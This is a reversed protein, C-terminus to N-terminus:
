PIRLVMANSLNGMAITGREGNPILSTNATGRWDVFDSVSGLADRILLCTIGYWVRPPVPHGPPSSRLAAGKASELLSRGCFEVNGMKVHPVKGYGGCEEDTCLTGHRVM